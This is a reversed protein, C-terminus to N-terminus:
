NGDQSAFGKGIFPIHSFIERCENVRLLYLASFFVIAFSVTMLTLGLLAPGLLFESGSSDGDMGPGWVKLIYHNALFFPVVCAAAAAGGVKSLHILLGRIPIPAVYRRFVAYYVPFMLVVGIGYGRSLGFRTMGMGRILLLYFSVVVLLSAINLLAHIKPKGATLLFSSFLNSHIAVLTAPLLFVLHTATMNLERPGFREGALIAGLILHRAALGFLVGPVGILLGYRLARLLSQLAEERRGAGWAESARTHTVVALSSWFLLGLIGSIRRGYTLTTISGEELYRALVSEIPGFLYLIVIGIAPYGLFALFRRVEPWDDRKPRVFRFRNRMLGVTVPILETSAGVFLGVAAARIGWRAGLFFVIGALVIQRPLTVVSATYHTGFSNLVHKYFGALGLFFVSPFLWRAIHSPVVAGDGVWSGEVWRLIQGQFLWLLIVLLILAGGIVTAATQVLRFVDRSSRQARLATVQPIVCTQFLNDFVTFFYFPVAQLLRFFTDTSGTAGYTRALVRNMVLSAIMNVGMFFMLVVSTRMMGPRESVPEGPSSLDPDTTDTNM